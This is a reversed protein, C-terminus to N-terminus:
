ILRLVVMMQLFLDIESTENNGSPRSEGCVKARTDFDGDSLHLKCLGQAHSEEIDPLTDARTIGTSPPPLDKIAIELTHEPSSEAQSM